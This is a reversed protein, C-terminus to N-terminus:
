SATTAARRPDISASAEIPRRGGRRNRAAREPRPRCSTVEPTAEAQEVPAPAAKPQRAARAKAILDDAAAMHDPVEDGPAAKEEASLSAPRGYQQHGQRLRQRSAAPMPAPRPLPQATTISPPSAGLRRNREEARNLFKAAYAVNTAPDFAADSRPLLADPHYYLDVQMCGVDSSASATPNFNRCSPSPADKKTEFYSARGRPM